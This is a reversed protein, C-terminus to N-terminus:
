MSRVTEPASRSMTSFASTTTMYLVPQSTAREVSSIGYHSIPQITETDVQNTDLVENILSFQQDFEEYSSYEQLESLPEEPQSQGHAPSTMGLTSSTDSYMRNTPASAPLSEHGVTDGGGSVTKHEIKM